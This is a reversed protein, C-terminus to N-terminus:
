STGCALGPCANNPHLIPGAHTIPAHTTPIPISHYIPIDVKPGPVPIGAAYRVLAAFCLVFFAPKVM